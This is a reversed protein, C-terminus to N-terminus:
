GRVGTLRFAIAQAERSSGKMHQFATRAENSRSKILLSMVTELVVGEERRMSRALDEAVRAGEDPRALALEHLAGV